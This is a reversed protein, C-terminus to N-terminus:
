HTKEAPGAAAPEESAPPLRHAMGFLRLVPGSLTFAAAAAILTQEPFSAIAALVLVVWLLTRIPHRRSTDVQKLSPYRITSVMLLALAFTLVAIGARATPDAVPEPWALVLAALAGAAGPIPLGVFYRNDHVVAAQVNFRALRLAGCSTFIFAIAWGLRPRALDSLAWTYVLMGPAVGFSVVDALSDLQIGLPSTAHALRAIRGDLGDLVMALVIFLAAKAFHAAADSEASWAWRGKAAEMLAYFGCFLNGLTFLSPLILVGRRLRKRDVLRV